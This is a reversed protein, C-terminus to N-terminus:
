DYTWEWIQPRNQGPTADVLYKTGNLWAFCNSHGESQGYNINYKELDNGAFRIEAKIGVEHCFDAFMDAGAMCSGHKFKYMSDKRGSRSSYEFKCIMSAITRAKEMESSGPVINEKIWQDRWIYYPYTLDDIGTVKIMFTFVKGGDLTVTIKATGNSLGVVCEELYDDNGVVYKKDTSINMTKSRTEFCIEEGGNISLNYVTKTGFYNELTDLSVFWVGDPFMTYENYHSVGKTDGNLVVNTTKKSSEKAKVTVKYVAKKGTGDAAKVTIAATGAGVAKVTGNKITAVKKNSTTWVVSKSGGKSVKVTAKLKETDGVTLTGSTSSLRISTVKGKVVKVIVTAKKKSNKASTVTIRATGAKKGAIVGKKSVTAIKPNSSKYTVKKNASKNPTVTVATKLTAKKGKALKITKSGTLSNVSTVKKVVAKKSAAEVTLTSGNPILVSLLLVIVMMTAKLRRLNTKSQRMNRM